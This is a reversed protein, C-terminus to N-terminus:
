KRWMSKVSPRSLVRDALEKLNLILPEGSKTFFQVPMETSDTYDNLYVYVENENEVQAYYANALSSATHKRGKSDTLTGNAVAQFDEFTARDLIDEFDDQPINNPIILPIKKHSIVGGLREGSANTTMGFAEQLAQEYIDTSVTTEGKAISRQIAANTAIEIAANATQPLVSPLMGLVEQTTERIDTTSKEIMASFEPLKKIEQGKLADSALVNNGISSLGALHALSPNKNSIQQLVDKTYEGFSNNINQLITQKGVSDTNDYQQSILNAEENTLIKPQIFNEQAYITAQRARTKATKQKEENSINPNFVDLVNVNEVEKINQLMRSAPDNKNDQKLISYYDELDKLFQAQPLTAGDKLKNGTDNILQELQIPTLTKFYKVASVRTDITAISQNIPDNPALGLAAAERQLGEIDKPNPVQGLRIINNVQSVAKDLERKQERYESNRARVDSKFSNILSEAKNLDVGRSLRNTKIPNGEKNFLNGVPGKKTDAELAAIYASKNKAKDYEAEIRAEHFSAVMKEKTKEVSTPDVGLDRGIKLWQQTSENLELESTPNGTAAIRTLYDIESNVVNVAISKVENDFNRLAENKNKETGNNAATELNKRLIKIQEIQIEADKLGNGSTEKLLSISTDVLKNTTLDNEERANKEFQNLASKKVQYGLSAASAEYRLASDPDLRALSKKMGDIPTILASSLEQETVIKKNEVDKLVNLYIDQTQTTLSTRLQEAQLKRVANQFIAGGTINFDEPTLTGSLALNIQEETPPSNITFEEASKKAQETAKQFAFDSLRDLGASMSQSRKISERVNVFDLQPLDSFLKGTQQYTPLRAM